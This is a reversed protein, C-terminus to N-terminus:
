HDCSQKVEGPTPAQTGRGRSGAECDPLPHSTEPPGGCWGSVVVYPVGSVVVICFVCCIVVCQVGSVVVICFVYCSVVCPVGSVVVICFVCCSVVLLVRYVVSLLLVFYM